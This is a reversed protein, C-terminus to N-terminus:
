CATFEAIGSLEQGSNPTGAPLWCNMQRGMEYHYPQHEKVWLECCPLGYGEM